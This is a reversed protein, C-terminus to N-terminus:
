SFNVFDNHEKVLKASKLSFYITQFSRDGKYSSDKLTASMQTCLKRFYNGKYSLVIEDTEDNSEFLLEGQHPHEFISNFLYLRLKEIDEKKYTSQFSWIDPISTPEDEESVTFKIFFSKGFADYYGTSRFLFHNPITTIEDILSIGLGPECYDVYLLSGKAGFHTAMYDDSNKIAKILLGDNTYFDYENGTKEFYGNDLQRLREWADDQVRTMGNGQSSEIIKIRKM